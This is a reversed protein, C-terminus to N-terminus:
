YCRKIKIFDSTLAQLIIIYCGRKIQPCVLVLRSRLLTKCNANEHGVNFLEQAWRSTAVLLKLFGTTSDTVM